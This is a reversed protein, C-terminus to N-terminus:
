KKSTRRTEAVTRKREYFDARTQLGMAQMEDYEAKTTLGLRSLNEKLSQFETTGPFENFEDNTACGFRKAEAYDADTEFGLDEYSEGGYKDSCFRTVKDYRCRAIDYNM